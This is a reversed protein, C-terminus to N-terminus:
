RKYDFTKGCQPCQKVKIVGDDTITTLECGHVDCVMPEVPVPKQLKALADDASQAAGMHYDRIIELMKQVETTDPQVKVPVVLNDFMKGFDM